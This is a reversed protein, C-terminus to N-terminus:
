AVDGEKNLPACFAIETFERYEEKILTYYLTASKKSGATENYEAVMEQVSPYYNMPIVEDPTWYELWGFNSM